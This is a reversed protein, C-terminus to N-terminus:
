PAYGGPAVLDVGLTVASQRGDDAVATFDAYAALRGAAGPDAAGVLHRRWARHLHQYGTLDPAGRDPADAQRV